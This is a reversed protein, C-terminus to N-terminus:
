DANRWEAPVVIRNSKRGWLIVERAYRVTDGELDQYQLRMIQPRENLSGDGTLLLSEFYEPITFAFRYENNTWKKVTPIRLRQYQVVEALEREDFGRIGQRNLFVKVIVLMEDYFQELRTSIRLFSAEEIDWYISGFGSVKCSKGKGALIREVHNEFEAVEDRLVTIDDTEIKLSCIYEIFDSLKVKYRKHLYIIIFFCLKLSFLTMAMCSFVLSRQWDQPPMSSTSIVVDQFESILRGIRIAGHTETLVIRKKIIGFRKQYTPDAMDTNPYVECLYIFLQGRFGSEFITDVGEVWSGYTEGPLGLILETYVPVNECNFKVQLNKYTSLQINQRKINKLVDINVSQFSLTIGKELEHKCLLMAIDYIRDEANKTFCSRFKEPYGYKQKAEVLLRAIEIDRKNIGFNSDANFVYRVKHEALWTIEASLRKLSHYRMKRNLGGQGWVCYACTFPCGRSTEIITQFEFDRHRAILDDFLGSIYPSPYIDIDMPLKQEADNRIIDGTAHNRWTIGSIGEFNRSVTLRRLIESFTTEGEGRVAVDIFPYDAFYQWSNFPVQPGGFIILVGPYRKKLEESVRLCIQENWMYVSFAAVSPNDYHAIINEVGDRFFIFPMFEYQERIEEFTEAYARLLGSVLPLYATNEMLVNFENLYVRSKGTETMHTKEIMIKKIAM